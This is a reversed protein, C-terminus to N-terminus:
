EVIINGNGDRPKRKWGTSFLPGMDFRPLVHGETNIVVKDLPVLDDPSFLLYLYKLTEALWFSEMNDKMVPPVKSADSLSTFGGGGPVATHEVFSKFMEWGWERYRVDGTIRWMYFLSEAAEPRQLNHVDLPRVEFDRRWGQKDGEGERRGEGGEDEGDEGGGKGGNPGLDAPPTPHPASAPLPPDAIRFYTIEAALGTKMYKYMGWCTHM